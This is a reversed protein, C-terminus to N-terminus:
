LFPLDQIDEIPAEYNEEKKKYGTFYANNVDVEMVTETNGNEVPKLWTSLRGNLAIYDGKHFYKKIFDGTQRWAGCRIADYKTRDYDKDVVVYFVVKTKDGVEVEKPDGQLRGIISVSNLM